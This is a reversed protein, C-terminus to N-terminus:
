EELAMVAMQAVVSFAVFLNNRSHKRSDLEGSNILWDLVRSQELGTEEAIRDFPVGNYGDYRDRLYKETKSVADHYLAAEIIEGVPVKNAIWHPEIKTILGDINLEIVVPKVKAIQTLEFVRM